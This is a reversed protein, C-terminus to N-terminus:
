FTFHDEFVFFNDDGVRAWEFRYNFTNFNFHAGLGFSHDFEQDGVSEGHDWATGWDSFAHAGLGVSRGGRLPVVFIPRRVEVSARLREDGRDSGFEVGRLDMPGGYYTREYWPLPDSAFRRTVYGGVTHLWPVPAFAALDLDLTRYGAFDDSPSAVALDASADIGRSPYFRSDRNDFGVSLLLAREDLDVRTDGVPTAEGFSGDPLAPDLDTLDRYRWRGAVSAFFGPGFKRDLGAEVAFEATTADPAPLYVWDHQFAGVDVWVGLKAAGLIWPNSWRARAQRLAWADLQLDFTEGRGLANVTGLHVEGYWQSDLRRSYELGASWVFGPEEDVKIELEVEGPGPRNTEIEVYAIFPLQELRTWAENVAAPDYEDGETFGLERELVYTKTREYGTIEIKTITRKGHNQLFPNQARASHPVVLCLLLLWPLLPRPM